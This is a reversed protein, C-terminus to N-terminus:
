GALSVMHERLDDLGVDVLEVSGVAKAVVFRLRAGARKKDHGLLEAARALPQSSLDMPLGLVRLLLICRETLSRPTTGMREGIKLAAVLGLSVAEGHRLKGYGGYAELAHGVTHGLNLCARLGDERQDLGVIRAKVRISRRVIESVVDLDRERIATAREEVLAFLEPDGIVATKVVEALASAYGRAPETALHEVDCIV